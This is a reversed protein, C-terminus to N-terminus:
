KADDGSKTFASINEALEDASMDIIRSYGKVMDARELTRQSIESISGIARTLEDIVNKQDQSFSFINRSIDSLHNIKRQIETNMSGLGDTFSITEALVARTEAIKAQVDRFIDSTGGIFSIENSIRNTQEIITGQIGKVLETTQDALKNVEDAVVSFGRGAEGARAAEIAANLALLNIKDAVENISNVTEEIGRLYSAMGEIAAVSKMMTQEGAEVQAVADNISTTLKSIRGSLQGSNANIREIDSKVHDSSELQARIENLNSEFSASMEEYSAATEEVIAALERAIDSLHTSATNLDTSVKKVEHSNTTVTGVVSRISGVMTNFKHSVYGIEDESQVPVSVDLEGRDVAKVGRSFARIANMLTKSFYFQFGFRIVLIVAALMIILKLSSPHFYHRFARYSFGAEYVRDSAPDVRLYSVFHARGDTGIRYNRAGAENVPALYRLMEAKLEKGELRTEALARTLADAFPAFDGKQGALFRALAQRFGADPLQSIKNSRYYVTRRIGLLHASIQDGTYDVGSQRGAGLGIIARRYGDFYRHSSEMLAATRAGGDGGPLSRISEFLATNQFHIRLAQPDIAGRDGDRIGLADSKPDYWALYRLEPSPTGAIALSLDKRRLDDHSRELDQLSFYAIFQFLVFFTVMSVGILKGMISIRDRSVGVFIIGVLYFGLINFLDWSVQFTERDVAGDRSLTNIVSPVVTTLLYCVLLILFIAREGKPARIMRFVSLVINIVIFGVIFLSVVKSIREADFDWYHGDFRYVTGAKLTMIFFVLSVVIAVAYQAIIFIRGAKEHRNDPFNIIMVNFHAEALLIVGVTLWRHFAAAPHYASAAIFYGLNFLFMFLFMMGLHFTAKSKGPITLVFFALSLHFLAPIISGVSFFNLYLMGSSDM